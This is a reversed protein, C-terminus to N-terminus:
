WGRCGSCVPAASLLAVVAPIALVVLTVILSVLRHPSLRHM